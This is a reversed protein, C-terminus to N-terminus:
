ISHRALFLCVTIPQITFKFHFVGKCAKVSLLPICMVRQVAIFNVTTRPHQGPSKAQGKRRIHGPIRGWRGPTMICQPTTSCAPAKLADGPLRLGSICQSDSHLGCKRMGQKNYSKPGLPHSLIGRSYLRRHKM